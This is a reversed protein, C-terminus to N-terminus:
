REAPSPGRERRRSLDGSPSISPLMVASKGVLNVHGAGSQRPVVVALQRVRGEGHAVAITALPGSERRRERPRTMTDM